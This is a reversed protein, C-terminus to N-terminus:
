FLVDNQLELTLPVQRVAEECGCVDAMNDDSITCVTLYLVSTTQFPM